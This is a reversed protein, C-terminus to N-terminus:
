QLITSAKKKKETPQGKSDPSWQGQLCDMSSLGFYALRERKEIPNGQSWDSRELDTYVCDSLLFILYIDDM